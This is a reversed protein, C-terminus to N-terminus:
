TKQLRGTNFTAYNKEPVSSWLSVWVILACTNHASRGVIKARLHMKPVERVHIKKWQHLLHLMDANPIQMVVIFSLCSIWLLSSTQVSFCSNPHLPNWEPFFWSGVQLVTKILSTPPTLFSREVTQDQLLQACCGLSKSGASEDRCQM